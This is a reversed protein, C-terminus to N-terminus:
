YDSNVYCIEKYRFNFCAELPVEMDAEYLFVTICDKYIIFHSVTSSSTYVNDNHDISKYLVTTGVLSQAREIADHRELMM